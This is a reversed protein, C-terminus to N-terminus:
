TMYLLINLSVGLVELLFPTLFHNLFVRLINKLLRVPSVQQAALSFRILTLKIMNMIQSSELTRLNCQALFTKRSSYVINCWRKYANERTVM